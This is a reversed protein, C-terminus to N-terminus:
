IGRQWSRLLDVLTENNTRKGEVSINREACLKLLDKKTLDEFGPPLFRQEAEPEVAADVAPEDEAFPDAEAVAEIPEEDLDLPAEPVDTPEDMDAAAELVPTAGEEPTEVAEPADEPEADDGFAAAAPNEDTEQSEPTEPSGTTEPPATLAPDAGGEGEPNDVPDEDPEDADVTKVIPGPLAEGLALARIAALEDIDVFRDGTHQVILQGTKVAAVIQEYHAVLFSVTIDVRRNPRVIIEGIRFVRGKFRTARRLAKTSVHRGGGFLYLRQPLRQEVEPMETQQEM